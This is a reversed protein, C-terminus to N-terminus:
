NHSTDYGYGKDKPNKTRDDLKQIIISEDIPQKDPQNTADYHSQKYGMQKSLQSSISDIQHATKSLKDMNETMKNIANIMLDLKNSIANLVDKINETEKQNKTNQDREIFYFVVLLVMVSGTLMIFLKYQASKLAVEFGQESFLNYLGIGVNSDWVLLIGIIISWTTLSKALKVGGKFVGRLLSTVINM